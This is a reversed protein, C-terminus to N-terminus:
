DYVPQRKMDQLNFAYMVIFVLGVFGPIYVLLAALSNHGYIMLPAAVGAVTGAVYLWFGARNMLFMLLAGGFTLLNCVVSAIASHQMKEQDVMMAASDQFMREAQSNGGKGKIEEKNKEMQKQMQSTLEPAKMYQVMGSFIGYGSGLFTLVCLVTLFASRRPKVYLTQTDSEM